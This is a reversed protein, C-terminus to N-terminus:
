MTERLQQLAVDDHCDALERQLQRLGAGDDVDHWPDLTAYPTASAQLHRLTQDWVYTSGWQIKAFIDPAEARAGVLYYGGDDAPGLVVAAEQLAAFADVIRGTPLNPADSGILLVKHYGQSFANEFYAKMRRGLDGEAQPELQWQGAALRAFDAHRERPTYTLVRHCDLGGAEGALNACGRKDFRVLVTKLFAYYLDAARRDGLTAALRTKVQGPEWYKAFVGLQRM